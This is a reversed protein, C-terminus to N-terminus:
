IKNTCITKTDKLKTYIGDNTPLIIKYNKQIFLKRLNQRFEWQIFSYFKHLSILGFYRLFNQTFGSPSLIRKMECFFTSFSFLILFIKCLSYFYLFLYITKFNKKRICILIKSYRASLPLHVSLFVYRFWLYYVDM